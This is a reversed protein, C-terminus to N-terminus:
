FRWTRVPVHEGPNKHIFGPGILAFREDIMNKVAAGAPRLEIEQLLDAFFESVLFGFKGSQGPLAQPFELRL